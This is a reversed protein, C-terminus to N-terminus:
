QSKRRSLREAVLVLIVTVLFVLTSLAHIEPTVGRRVSAYIFLPLTTSAPGATFFSIVFDDLSLTFALMAGAVIGPTLLPLLVRRLVDANSAYLDRAAEELDRSFAKMRGQVVLTVFAVQFTVHGIIMAPMGLEFGSFVVRLLSFGVVLSAALIIDPTVVPLYLVTSFFNQARKGWPYRELAIALMTGLVTAILTSVLALFLTNRAAELIEQNQILQRYWNLTFGTFVMGYKAQNVSYVAVALMPLYLFALTALAIGSVLHRRM